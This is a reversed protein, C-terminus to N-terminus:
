PNPPSGIVYLSNGKPLQSNLLEVSSVKWTRAAAPSLRLSGIVPSPPAVDAQKVPAKEGQLKTRKGVQAEADLAAVVVLAGSLAWWRLCGGSTLRALRVSVRNSNPSNM